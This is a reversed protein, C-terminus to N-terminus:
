NSKSAKKLGPISLGKEGVANTSNSIPPEPSFGKRSSSSSSLSFEGGGVVVVGTESLGVRGGWHQSTTWKACSYFVNRM